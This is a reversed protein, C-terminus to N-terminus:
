LEPESLVAPSYIHYDKEGAIQFFFSIAPDYHFPTITASSSILLSSDLRVLKGSLGGRRRAIDAFLTGLLDRFRRDYREPHKLLIQQNGSGLRDMAEDPRCVRHTVAYFETGEAPAASAVFYDRDTYLSTLHQLNSFRFVDLSSLNHTFGFPERDFCSTLAHPEIDVYVREVPNM